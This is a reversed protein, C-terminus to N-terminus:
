RLIALQARLEAVEARLSALEADATQGSDQESSHVALYRSIGALPDPSRVIATHIFAAQLAEQVRPGHEDIYALVSDSTPELKAAETPARSRGDVSSDVSFRGAEIHAIIDAGRMTLSREFPKQPM